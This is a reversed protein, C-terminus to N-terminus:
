GDGDKRRSGAVYLVYTLSAGYLHLDKGPEARGKCVAVRGCGETGCELFYKNFFNNKFRQFHILCLWSPALVDLEKHTNQSCLSGKM